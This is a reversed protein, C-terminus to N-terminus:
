KCTAVGYFVVTRLVKHRSRARRIDPIQKNSVQTSEITLQRKLQFLPDVAKPADPTSVIHSLECEYIM